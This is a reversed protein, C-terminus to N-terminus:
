LQKDDGIQVLTAGSEVAAELLPVYRRHDVMGGEDVLLVDNPTLQLAGNDHRAYLGDLTYQYDAGSDVQAQQSTRGAVALAIVRRGQQHWLNVASHSAFGKGTGAPGA